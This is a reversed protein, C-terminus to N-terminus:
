SVYNKIEYLNEFDQYTNIPDVIGLRDIIDVFYNNLFDPTDCSLVEDNTVPDIFSSSTNKGPNIDTFGKLIRWFKKPNKANADLITKFYNIKARTILLTIRNRSKRALELYRQCGTCRFVNLCRERYRIERYIEANLWPKIVERQKYRKFPCMVSLIELIVYYLIDWQENPNRSNKLNDWNHNRLLQSLIPESYNRYDRVVRYVIRNNERKKKRVCFITLHDSILVNTAGCYIMFPSNTVIWDICSGKYKNPRTVKSILQSLGHNRFFSVFKKTDTNDRILFDTNFDGMLWLEQNRSMLENQGNKLFDIVTQVNTKPPKYIVTINMHKLGPKRVSITLIEIEENSMTTTTVIKCFKSYKNDVYLCVGGGKKANGNPLKVHRDLRFLSKDPFSLM